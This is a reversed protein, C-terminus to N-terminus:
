ISPKAIDQGTGEVREGPRPQLTGARADHLLCHNVPKRGLDPQWLRSGAADENGPAGHAVEQGHCQCSIVPEWTSLRRRPDDIDGLLRMVRNALAEADKAKVARLNM